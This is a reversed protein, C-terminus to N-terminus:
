LQVVNRNRQFKYIQLYSMFIQRAFLPTRLFSPNGAEWVREGGGGEQVTLGCLLMPVRSYQRPRCHIIQSIVSRETCIKHVPLQYQCYSTASCGGALPTLVLLGEMSGDSLLNHGGVM